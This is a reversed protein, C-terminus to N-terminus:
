EHSGKLFLGILDKQRRCETKQLLSAVQSRVTNRGVGHREAIERTAYGDLMGQLVSTERHTLRFTKAFRNLRNRSDQELTDREFTLLDQRSIADLDVPWDRPSLAGNERIMVLALPQQWDKVWASAVALPTLLIQRNGAGHMTMIGGRAPTQTAQTILASLKSVSAPHRCSLTGSRVILDGSDDALLQEAKANLHMVKAHPNIILVAWVLANIAQNGLESMNHLDLNHRYLRYARSVHHGFRLAAKRQAVEFRPQDPPRLFGLMVKHEATKDILGGMTYRVGIPILFEQYIENHAVFRNDLYAHCFRWEHLGINTMMGSTMRPDQPLHRETWHTFDHRNIYVGGFLEEQILGHNKKWPFCIPTAPAWM